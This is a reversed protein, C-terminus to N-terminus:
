NSGHTRSGSKMRARAQGNRTGSELSTAKRPSQGCDPGKYSYSGAEPGRSLSVQTSGQVEEVRELRHQDM